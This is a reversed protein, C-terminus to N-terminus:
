FRVELTVLVVALLACVRELSESCQFLVKLSVKAVIYDVLHLHHRVLSGVANMASALEVRHALEVCVERIRMLLAQVAFLTTKPEAISGIQSLMQCGWDMILAVEWTRMAGLDELRCRSHGMVQLVLTKSFNCLGDDLPVCVVLDGVSNISITDAFDGLVTGVIIVINEEGMVSCRHLLDEVHEGSFLGPIGCDVCVYAGHRSALTLEGLKRM